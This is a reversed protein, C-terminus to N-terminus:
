PVVVYRRTLGEFSMSALSRCHQLREATILFSGTKGRRAIIYTYQIALIHANLMTVNFIFTVILQIYAICRLNIVRSGFGLYVSCRHM